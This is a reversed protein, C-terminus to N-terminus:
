SLLHGQKPLLSLRLEGSLNNLFGWLLQWWGPGPSHYNTPWIPPPSLLKCVVTLVWVQPLVSKRKFCLYIGTTTLMSQQSPSLLSSAPCQTFKYWSLCSLGTPTEPNVPSHPQSHVCKIRRCLSITVFPLLSMWHRLGTFIFSNSLRYSPPGEPLPSHFHSYCTPFGSSVTSRPPSATLFPCLGGESFWTPGLIRTVSTTLTLIQEDHVSRFAFTDVSLAYESCHINMNWLFHLIDDLSVPSFILFSTAWSDLFGHVQGLSALVTLLSVPLCPSLQVLM